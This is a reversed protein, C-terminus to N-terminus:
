AWKMQWVGKCNSMCLTKSWHCLLNKIVNKNRYLHCKIGIYRLVLVCVRVTKSRNLQSLKTVARVTLVFIFKRNIKVSHSILLITFYVLPLTIGKSTMIKYKPFMSCKTEVKAGKTAKCWPFLGGGGTSLWYSLPHIGYAQQSAKSQLTMDTSPISGHNM